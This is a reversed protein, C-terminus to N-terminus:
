KKTRRSEPVYTWIDEERFFSYDYEARLTEDDIEIIKDCSVCRMHTPSIENDYIFTMTLLRHLCTEPNAMEAGNWLVTGSTKYFVRLGMGLLCCSM